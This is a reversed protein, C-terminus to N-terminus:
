GNIVGEMTDENFPIEYGELEMAKVMDFWLEKQTGFTKEFAKKNHTVNLKNQTQHVDHLEFPVPAIFWEGIKETVFNIKRKAQRGEIHHIQFLYPNACYGGFKDTLWGSNTAFNAVSSCWRKEAATKNNSIM